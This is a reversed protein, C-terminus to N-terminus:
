QQFGEAGARLGNGLPLNGPGFGQLWNIPCNVSHTYPSEPPVNGVTSPLLFWLHRVPLRRSVTPAVSYYQSRDRVFDFVVVM